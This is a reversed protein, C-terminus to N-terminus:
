RRCPIRSAALKVAPVWNGDADPQLTIRNWHDEDVREFVARFNPRDPYVQWMTLVGDILRARMDQVQYSGNYVWSATWEGATPNFMRVNVGRPADPELGPDRDWWEDEIALGGLTYFGNWRAPAGPRAPSWGDTQMAHASVTFDGILFDFQSLEAPADPAPEGYACAPPALGDQAASPPAPSAMPLGPGFAPPPASSCSAVTLAVLVNPLNAHRPM